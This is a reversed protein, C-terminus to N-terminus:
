WGNVKVFTLHPATPLWLQSKRTFTSLPVRRPKSCPAVCHYLKLSSHNITYDNGSRDLVLCIIDVLVSIIKAVEGIKLSSTEKADPIRIRFVM